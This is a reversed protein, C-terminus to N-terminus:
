LAAAPTSKNAAEVLPTLERRFEAKWDDFSREFLMRQRAITDDYAASEVERLVDDLAARSCLAQRVKLYDDCDMYCRATFLANFATQKYSISFTPKNVKTDKYFHFCYTEPNCLICGGACYHRLSLEIDEGGWKKLAPSFGGLQDFRSKRLFMMGGPCLPVSYPVRFRSTGYHHWRVGLSWGSLTYGYQHDVNAEPVGHQRVDFINCTAMTEGPGEECTRRLQDLWGNLVLIHSDIFCLYKGSATEAGLNRAVIAGSQPAPTSVIRVRQWGRVSEVSGDTCGDDVVVVEWSERGVAQSVSEVTRRLWDGENYTPIIISVAPCNSNSAPIAVTTVTPAAPLRTPEQRKGTVYVFVPTSTEVLDINIGRRLLARRWVIDYNLSKAAQDDSVEAILLEATPRSLVYTGPAGVRQGAQEEEPALGLGGRFHFPLISGVEEANATWEQNILNLCFRDRTPDLGARLIHRHLEDVYHRRYIHDPDICFFLAASRELLARIAGLYALAVPVDPPMRRILLPERALDRIASDDDSGSRVAIVHYDPSLSQHEM